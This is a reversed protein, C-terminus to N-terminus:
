GLISIFVLVSLAGIAAWIFQSELLKQDIIEMKRSHWIYDAEPRGTPVYDEFEPQEQEKKLDQWTLM